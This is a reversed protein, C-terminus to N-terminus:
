SPQTVPQDHLPHSKPSAHEHAAEDSAFLSDLNASGELHRESQRLIQKVGPKPRCLVMFQFGFMTPWVRALLASIQGLLKSISGRMVTEFPVPVPWIKEVRYGCDQLLRRLSSRTFLRKHTIDLIGREAYTFRGLLLNLRVAAFAINPTSIVMAPPKRISPLAASQNRLDVLFSEPDSMHEIVDLLLVMDYNFADFPLPRRDLDVRHFESMMGPLPEYFDLGTVRVGMEECRKAIFGPGCGIDLLTQPKLKRVVDLAMAHSSYLIFTKDQYREISLNRFKLDCLMGMRHLKYKTTAFIVDRAYKVGNVRCIEDGYHTPINLESIKADVHFAQLLIETDFHFDNTNIEFPVQRLFRTSYGRYGTHYESLNRACLKNQFTTLFRNAFVKYWPMGGARASRISHMRTGLIVDSDEQRWLDIFQPLLEPAYQGDGHLLIIFDFGADVGIRYGLKQNGGYGQNVPNRLLTINEVNRHRVWESAVQISRDSSADDIMLFHVDDRNWLEAPVRDLVQPAHREAQYAVIFVLVRGRRQNSLDHEIPQPM